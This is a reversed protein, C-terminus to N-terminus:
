AAGKGPFMQEIIAGLQKKRREMLASEDIAKILADFDIPYKSATEQIKADQEVLRSDIKAIELEARKRMENARIPALAAQVAEKTSAILKAYPILKM